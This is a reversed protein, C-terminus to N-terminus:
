SYYIFDLILHVDQQLQFDQARKTKIKLGKQELLYIVKICLFIELKSINLFAQFHQKKLDSQILTSKKQQESSNLGRKSKPSTPPLSITFQRSDLM